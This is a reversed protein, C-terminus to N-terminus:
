RVGYHSLFESLVGDHFFKSVTRVENLRKGQRFFRHLKSFQTRYKHRNKKRDEIFREREERTYELQNNKGFSDQNYMSNDRAYQKEFHIVSRAKKCRSQISNPELSETPKHDM